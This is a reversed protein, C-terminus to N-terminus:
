AECSHKVKCWNLNRTALVTSGALSITAMKLARCAKSGKALVAEYAGLRMTGGLNGNQERRELEDGKMWETMLGIM